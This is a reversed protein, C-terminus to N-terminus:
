RVTWNEPDMEARWAGILTAIDSVAWGIVVVILLIVGSKVMLKKLKKM